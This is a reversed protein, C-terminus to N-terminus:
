FKLKTLHNITPIDFISIEHSNFLILNDGIRKVSKNWELSGSLLNM